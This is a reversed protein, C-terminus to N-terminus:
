GGRGKKQVACPQRGTTASRWWDRHCELCPEGEPDDIIRCSLRDTIWMLLPQLM